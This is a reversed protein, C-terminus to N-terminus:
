PKELAVRPSEQKYEVQKNTPYRDDGVLSCAGYSCTNRGTRIVSVDGTGLVPGPVGWTSVLCGQVFSHLLVRHIFVTSQM